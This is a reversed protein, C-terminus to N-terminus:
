GYYTITISGGAPVVISYGAGQSLPTNSFSTMGAPGGTGGPFTKGFGTASAGTTAATTDWYSTDTYSYCNQTTNGNPLTDSPNCYNAPTPGWGTGSGTQASSVVSGDPRYNTTTIVYRYQQVYYSSAPTGAAGFGSVSVLASVGAPSTWTTNQTFTLTKLTSGGCAALMMLLSMITGLRKWM